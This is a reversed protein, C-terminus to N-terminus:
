ETDNTKNSTENTKKGRERVLEKENMIIGNRSEDIIEM